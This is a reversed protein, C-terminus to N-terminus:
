NDSYQQVRKVKSTSSMECVIWLKSQHQTNQKSRETKAEVQENLPATRASVVTQQREYFCCEGCPAGSSQHFIGMESTSGTGPTKLSIPNRCNVDPVDPVRIM